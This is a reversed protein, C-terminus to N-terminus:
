PFNAKSQVKQHLPLITITLSRWSRFASILHFMDGTTIHISQFINARQFKQTLVIHLSYVFTDVEEDETADPVWCIYPLLITHM